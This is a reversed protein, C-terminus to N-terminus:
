RMSAFFEEAKKMGEETCIGRIYYLFVSRFVEAVDFRDPPFTNPNVIMSLQEMMIKTVLQINLDQRLERQLVGQNLLDYLLYSSYENSHAWYLAWATPYKQQIEMLVTPQSMRLTTLGQEVVLLLRRLPSPEKAFLLEHEKKRCDLDFEVVQTVVDEMGGKFFERFTASSIDVRNIIEHENLHSLGEQRILTLLEQLVTQKFTM